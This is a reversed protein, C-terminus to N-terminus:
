ALIDDDCNERIISDTMNDLVARHIPIAGVPKVLVRKDTATEEVINDSIARHMQIVGVPKHFAESNTQTQVVTWNDSVENLMIIEGDPNRFARNFMQTRDGISQDVVRDLLPHLFNVPELNLIQIAGVPNGFIKKLM